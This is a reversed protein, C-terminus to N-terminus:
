TTPVLTVELVAPIVHCEDALVEEVVIEVGYGEAEITLEYEGALEPGCSHYGDVGSCDETPGGDVSYTVTTAPIPVAGDDVVTLDIAYRLDDTCAIQSKDECASTFLLALPLLFRFM